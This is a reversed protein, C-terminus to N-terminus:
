GLGFETQWNDHYQRSFILQIEEARTVSSGVLVNLGAQLKDVRPDDIIPPEARDIRDLAAAIELIKARVPLYERELVEQATM